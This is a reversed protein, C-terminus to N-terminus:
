CFFMSCRNLTPIVVRKTDSVNFKPFLPPLLKSETDMHSCYTGLANQFRQEFPIVYGGM